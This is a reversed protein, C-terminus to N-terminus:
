EMFGKTKITFPETRAVTHWGLAAAMPAAASSSNAPIGVLFELICSGPSSNSEKAELEVVEPGVPGALVSTTWCVQSSSCHSSAKQKVQGAWRRPVQPAARDGCPADPCQCTAAGDRCVGTQGKGQELQNHRGGQLIDAVKPMPLAVAPSAM